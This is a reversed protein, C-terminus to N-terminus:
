EVILTKPTMNGFQVFYIGQPLVIGNSIPNGQVNFIKINGLGLNRIAKANIPNPLIPYIQSKYNSIQFQMGTTQGPDYEYAGRDWTGDQGRAKGDPDTNYDMALSMGGDTAAKLQFDQTAYNVFPDGSAYEKEHAALNFTGRFVCKIFTNYDHTAGGITSNYSSNYNINNYVINNSGRLSLAGNRNLDVFTNNYIKFNGGQSGYETWMGISGNGGGGKWFVNGYIDVNNCVGFILGGTSKIDEFTSHRIIMNDCYRAAMVETHQWGNVGYDDVYLHEFLCNDINTIGIPTRSVGHIYVHSLTLHTATNIMFYIGDNDKNNVTSNHRFEFHKFTIHNTGNATNRVSKAFDSAPTNIRFGYQDTKGTGWQGDFTYYGTAFELTGSFEATGDGYSNQWGVDTGHNTSTAKKITIVATGQDDFKYSPYTGDAMYYTDGRVLTPPLQGHANTWDSGNGTGGQRIYHNAGFSSTITFFVMVSVFLNKM